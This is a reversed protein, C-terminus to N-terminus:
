LKRWEPSAYQTIFDKAASIRAYVGPMGERACGRGWSVAGILVPQGDSNFTFIPGGSDGQCADYGKTGGACIMTEDINRLQRKCYENSVISTTVELMTPSPRGGQSTAGWGCTTANVGVVEDAGNVDPLAISHYMEDAPEALELIAFDNSMGLPRGYDSHRKTSNVKIYQGDQDGQRYYSGISVWSPSNYGVCHAATLVHTRDILSGGCFTSGDRSRRLGVTFNYQGVETPTGGVILPVNEDKQFKINSQILLNQYEDFTTATAAAILVMMLM